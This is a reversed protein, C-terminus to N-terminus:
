HPTTEARAWAAAQEAVSFGPRDLAEPHALVFLAALDSALLAGQLRHEREFALRHLGAFEAPTLDRADLALNLAQRTWWTQADVRLTPYANLVPRSLAAHRELAAEYQRVADPTGAAPLPATGARAVCLDPALVMAARERLARIVGQPGAAPIFPNRM